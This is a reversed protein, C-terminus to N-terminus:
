PSILNTIVSISISLLQMKNCWESMIGLEYSMMRLEDNM